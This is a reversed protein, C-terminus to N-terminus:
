KRFTTLQTVVSCIGMVLTISIQPMFVIRLILISKVLHKEKGSKNIYDTPSTYTLQKEYSFPLRTLTDCERSNGFCYFTLTPLLLFISTTMSILDRIEKTCDGSSAASLVSKELESKLVTM